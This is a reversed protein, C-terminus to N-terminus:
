EGFLSKRRAETEINADLWGIVLHWPLKTWRRTGVPRWQLGADTMKVQYRAENSPWKAIVEVTLEKVSDGDRIESM